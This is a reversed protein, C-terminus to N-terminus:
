RGFRLPQIVPKEFDAAREVAIEADRHGVHLCTFDNVEIARLRQGLLAQALQPDREGGEVLRVIPFEAKFVACRHREGVEGHEM